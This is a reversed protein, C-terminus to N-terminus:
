PYEDLLGTTNATVAAISTHEVTKTTNLNIELIPM